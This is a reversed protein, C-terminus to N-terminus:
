SVTVDGTTAGVREFLERYWAVARGTTDGLERSGWILCLLHRTEDRTKTRMSDKVANACPGDADHLCLLREVKIEQGSPNFVYSAGEEAIAVRLPATALDLDVVSIPLGSHLSVVNCLDVALNISRLGEEGTATRVLYESAPKGRGTPKYGGHRLVDRVKGRIEETRSLPADADDRLLDVLWDPSPSEGLPAQLSARILGLDLNPHEDVHIAVTDASM